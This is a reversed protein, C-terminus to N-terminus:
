LLKLHISKEGKKNEELCTSDSAAIGPKLEETDVKLWCFSTHELILTHGKVWDASNMSKQSV